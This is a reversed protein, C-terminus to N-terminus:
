SDRIVHLGRRRLFREIRGLAEEIQALSTAYTCRVFGAGCAGFADGPVVAVREKRLLSEAFEESTMGTRAISPFVYFAGRPEVCDLGLERLGSTILRRRRDYEAVMEQVAQEGAPTLAAEAAHQAPTPASMITYQHVKLMAKAVEAPALAAGVRWGTMAYAKSFGYLLIVNERAGPISAACVHECGYVLRDYTEDSILFLDNELALKVLGEMRERSLVAGTPNNPYGILIAKTRPGILAAAAEPRLQFDDEARTELVVPKGGAFVVEPKYAVFCPEPVIVEDGPNLIATLALYLGESVGVTIVIENTPDYEVNYLRKLHEATAQRLEIRGANSTYGTSGAALSAIGARLIPEPTVFDPEGIGLSIVDKITAVIDFFRRIGSFPADLVRQSLNPM